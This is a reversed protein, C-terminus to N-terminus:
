SLDQIYRCKPFSSCGYFKRGIYPGRKAVRLVLESGCQPCYLSEEIEYEPNKEYKQKISKIHASKIARNVGSLRELKEYIAAIEEEDLWNESKKWIKRITAYLKDRKIVHADSEEIEVERLECRVSFAIISFLPIEDKLYHELWRMHTENQRIPNYFQNKEGNSLSATWYTDWEDGYIWGSYNKSEIVFIGKQTIFLVDIETTEGNEKPIYVNRLIKGHRGLLRIINLNKEILKEGYQGMWRADYIKDLIFDVLGKAM